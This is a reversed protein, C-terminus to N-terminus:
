KPVEKQWMEEIIQIHQRGSLPQNRPEEEVKNSLKCGLLLLWKIKGSMREVRVILLISLANIFIAIAFSTIEKLVAFHLLRIPPLHTLLLTGSLNVLSSIIFMITAIFMTKSTKMNERIQYRSSLSDVAARTQLIMKRKSIMRTMLLLFFIGILIPIELALKFYPVAKVTISSCYSRYTKQSRNLVSVVDKISLAIEFWTLPLFPLAVPYKWNEYRYYFCM